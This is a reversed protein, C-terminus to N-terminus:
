IEREFLSATITTIFAVFAAASYDQLTAYPYYPLLAFTVLSGVFIVGHKLPHVKVSFGYFKSLLREELTQKSNKM